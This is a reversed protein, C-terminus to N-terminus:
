ERSLGMLSTLQIATDVPYGEKVMALIFVKQTTKNEIRSLFAMAKGYNDKTTKMPDKLLIDVFEKAEPRVSEVAKDFMIKQDPTM